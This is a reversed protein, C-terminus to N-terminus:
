HPFGRRGGAAISALLVNHGTDDCRKAPFSSLASMSVGLCSKAGCVCLFFFQKSPPSVLLRHTSPHVEGKAAEADAKVKRAERLKEEEALVDDEVEPKEEEEEEEEEKAVEEAETAPAPAEQPAPAPAQTADTADSETSVDWWSM